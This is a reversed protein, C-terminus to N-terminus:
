DKNFKKRWFVPGTLGTSLRGLLVQMKRMDDLIKVEQIYPKHSIKIKDMFM